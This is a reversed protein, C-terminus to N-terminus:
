DASWNQWGDKSNGVVRFVVDRVGAKEFRLQMTVQEGEVFARRTDILMFHLPVGPPSVETRGTPLSLPFTNTMTMKDGDRVVHHLEVSDACECSIGLLRDSPGTNEFGAYAAVPGGAEAAAPLIM